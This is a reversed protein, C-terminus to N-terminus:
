RSNGQNTDVILQYSTSVPRIVLRIEDSLTTVLEIETIEQGTIETRNELEVKLKSGLEPIFIGSSILM